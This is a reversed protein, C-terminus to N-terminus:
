KRYRKMYSQRIIKHLEDIPHGKIVTLIYERTLIHTDYIPKNENFDKLVGSTSNSMAYSKIIFTEINKIKYEDILEIYYQLYDREEKAKIYTRLKTNSM